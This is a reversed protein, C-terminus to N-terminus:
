ARVGVPLLLSQVQYYHTDGIPVHMDAAGAWPKRARKIGQNRMKNWIVQRAEWSSRDDLDDCISEYLESNDLSESM